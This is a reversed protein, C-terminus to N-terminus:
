DMDNMSPFGHGNVNETETTGKIEAEYQKQLEDCLDDPLIDFDKCVQLVAGGVDDQVIADLLGMVQHEEIGYAALTNLLEEMADATRVALPAFDGKGKGRRHKQATWVGNKRVFKTGAIWKKDGDKEESQKPPQYSNTESDYVYGGSGGYNDDGWGRFGIARSPAREIKIMNSKWQAPFEVSSPICMQERAIADASPKQLLVFRKVADPLLNYASEASALVDGIDWLESMDPEYLDGQHYVRCHLSHHPKDMDGVTIHLGGSSHLGNPADKENSEDTGSQFASISCHHHVSGWEVWDNEQAGFLSARQEDTEKGTIEKAALDNEAQQPFAWARWQQHKASVYLRVMSESKTGDYTWKFFSLVQQWMEKPIKPGRYELTGELETVKGEHRATFLDGGEITRVWNERKSKVLKM